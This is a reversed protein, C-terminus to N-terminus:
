TARVQTKTWVSKKDEIGVGQVEAGGGGGEVVGEGVDFAMLRRCYLPFPLYKSFSQAGMFRYYPLSFSFMIGVTSRRDKVGAGMM